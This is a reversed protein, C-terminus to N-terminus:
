PHVPATVATLSQKFIPKLVLSPFLPKSILLYKEMNQQYGAPKSSEQLIKRNQQWIRDTSIV